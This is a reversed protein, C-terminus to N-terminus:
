YFRSEWKRIQLTNKTELPLRKSTLKVVSCSTNIGHPPLLVDERVKGYYYYLWGISSM